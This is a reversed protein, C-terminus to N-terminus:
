NILANEPHTKNANPIQYWIQQVVRFSITEPEFIKCAKKWRDKENKNNFVVFETVYQTSSFSQEIHFLLFLVVFIIKM